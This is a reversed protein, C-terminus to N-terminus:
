DVHDEPDLLIHRSPKSDIYDWCVIFTIYFSSNSLKGRPLTIIDNQGISEAKGIARLIKKISPPFSVSCRSTMREGKGGELCCLMNHLLKFVGMAKNSDRWHSDCAWILTKLMWVVKELWANWSGCCESFHRTCAHGQFNLWRGDSSLLLNFKKYRWDMRREFIKLPRSLTLTLCIFKIIPCQRPVALHDKEKLSCTTVRSPPFATKQKWM